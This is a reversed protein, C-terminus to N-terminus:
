PEIEVAGEPLTDISSLDDNTINLSVHKTIWIKGLSGNKINTKIYISTTNDNSNRYYALKLEVGSKNKSGFSVVYPSPNPGHTIALLLLCQQENNFRGFQVQMMSSAREYADGNKITTLHVWNTGNFLEKMSPFKIPVKNNVDLLGGM